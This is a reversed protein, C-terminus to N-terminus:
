KSPKSIRAHARTLGPNNEDVSVQKLKADPQSSKVFRYIDQSNIALSAVRMSRAINIGILEGKLGVLPGGCNGPALVSDHALTPGFGFRRKSYPGGGWRDHMSQKGTSSSKYTIRKLNGNRIITATVLDGLRLNQIMTDIQSRSRISQGNFSQIKDGILLGMREALTRPYVRLIEIPAAQSDPQITPAATASLTAGLDICDTCLSQQIQFDFNPLTVVGWAAVSRNHGISVTITGPAVTSAGAPDEFSVPVTQKRKVKILCLDRQRDVAVVRFPWRQGDSFICRGAQGVLSHKSVILGDTSVVTGLVSRGKKDIIQIVSKELAVALPSFAARIEDAQKGSRRVSSQVQDLLAAAPLRAFTRAQDRVSFSGTRSATSREPLAADDVTVAAVDRRPPQHSKPEYRGAYRTRYRTPDVANGPLLAKSPRAKGRIRKKGSIKRKGTGEVQVTQATPPSIGFDTETNWSRRDILPSNQAHAPWCCSIATTLAIGLTLM